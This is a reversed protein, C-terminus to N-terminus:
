GGDCPMRASTPTYGEQCGIWCVDGDALGACDQEGEMFAVVPANGCHSPVCRADQFNGKACTMRGTKQVPEFGLECRYPCGAGDPTGGCNQCNVCHPVVPAECQQPVCKGGGDWAGARCIQKGQAVYGPLCILACEEGEAKQNCAEM